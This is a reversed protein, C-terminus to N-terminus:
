NFCQYLIVSNAERASCLIDYHDFAQRVKLNFPGIKTDVYSEIFSYPAEFTSSLLGFRAEDNLEGFLITPHNFIIGAWIAHGYSIPFSFVKEYKNMVKKYIALENGHFGEITVYEFEGDNDIDCVAVDGIEHHLIQKVSLDSNYSISIEFLGESASFFLRKQNGVETEFFGHNKTLEKIVPKFSWNGNVDNSPIQSMFIGGPRTWDEKYNKLGSLTAVICYKGGNISIISFKHLFPMDFCKEVVWKNDNNNAHSVKVLCSDACDYEPLFNQIVYFSKNDIQKFIQAGRNPITWEQIIPTKDVIDFMVCKGTSGSACIAYVKQNINFFDIAYPNLINQIDFRNIIM